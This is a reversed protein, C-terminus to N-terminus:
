LSLHPISRQFKLVAPTGKRGLPQHGLTHLRYLWVCGGSKEGAPSHPTPFLLSQTQAPTWQTPGSQQQCCRCRREHKSGVAVMELRGQQPFRSFVARPLRPGQHSLVAPVPRHVVRTVVGQPVSQGQGDGWGRQKGNRLELSPNPSEIGNM